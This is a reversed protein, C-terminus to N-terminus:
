RNSKKEILEVAQAVTLEEPKIEKPVGVNVKGHKIYPGYRGEYLVIPKSNTPHDGITRVVKARNGRVKPTDLMVIADAETLELLHQEASLSRTEDGCRIYPGFRGNDAIIAEDTKPYTGITKPFALLQLAIELTVDNVVMGKLLGKMKPKKVKAAKKGTAKKSPEKKEKKPKDGLQVYPGFRGELVFVNEGTEPDQGLAKPGEAQKAIFTKAMEVTLQDPPLDDPISATEETDGVLREVFPGYRGVRVNIQHDTEDVGIPITCTARADIDVNLMNHLGKDTENGFYFQQLYPLYEKEGAAIEDLDEEMAATYETNVLNAFNNQLLAVVGFAVFRPILAGGDKFVYGRRQITDIITAYTSPRGIGDTELQKVLSAETFRAPAKTQHDKAIFDNGHVTDGQQMAPLLTEDDDNTSDGYAKLYGPFQVVRGGAQFVATENSLQVTTQLLQADVMQSAMTRKWILAYLKVENDELEGKIETVPRMLKGSPRIAEHAEQANKSKSKYFRPTGPLYEKGYQEVIRQATATLAEQSLQVSDTRMYTIYGKEYLKQAVQMTQRASWKFVNGAVQQLTSTIFPPKPRLVIPKQQVDNVLWDNKQFATSLKTADAEALLMVDKALSKKLEGTKGNFDKGTAIRKGNYSLLKAEFQEQSPTTFQGVIDWYSASAFAMRERERNVILQLAASQVRGASLKPAVKRWLIPSVEYGYLRDVVRRTEQAQVLHMDIDRPNDLAAQIAEKTIEHFVMRKVPVSPQLVELLHWSIAEGERDEDTALYLEDADKILQKLKAVQKKKDKPIIYLPAFQDDVNVGLRSWKETKYKAPIETASQPLDRIHGFSSEVVFGTPLYRKITKAKTPSEVIVLKM